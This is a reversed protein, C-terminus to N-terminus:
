KAPIAILTDSTGEQGNPWETLAIASGGTQAAGGPAGVGKTYTGGAGWKASSMVLFLAANKRGNKSTNRTFGDSDAGGQIRGGYMEFLGDEWIAVGGGDNGTNGHIVGGKM